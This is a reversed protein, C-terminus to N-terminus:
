DVPKRSKKLLNKLDNVSSFGSNEVEIKMLGVEDRSVRSAIRAKRRLGESQSLAWLSIGSGYRYDEWVVFSSMTSSSANFPKMSAIGFDTRIM